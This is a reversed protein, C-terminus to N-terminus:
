QWPVAQYCRLQILLAPHNCCCIRHVTWPDYPLLLAVLWLIRIVICPHPHIPVGIAYLLRLSFPDEPAVPLPQSHPNWTPSMLAM